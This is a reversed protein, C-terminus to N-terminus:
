VSQQKENEPYNARKVVIIFECLGEVTFWTRGHIRLFLAYQPSLVSESFGIWFM